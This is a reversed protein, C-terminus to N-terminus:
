LWGSSSSCGSGVFRSIFRISQGEFKPLIELECRARYAAKAEGLTIGEGFERVLDALHVRCANRRSIEERTAPSIDDPVKEVVAKPEKKRVLGLAERKSEISCFSRNMVAAIEKVFMGSACLEKLTAVEQDTWHHIPSKNPRLRLDGRIRKATTHKIGMREAIERDTLGAAHLAFIRARDIM